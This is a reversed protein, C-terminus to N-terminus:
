PDPTLRNGYGAMRRVEGWHWKRKDTPRYGHVAHYPQSEDWPSADPPFEWIDVWEGGPPAFGDIYDWDGCDEFVRFRWGDPTRYLWHSGNHPDMGLLSLSVAGSEIAALVEAVVSM